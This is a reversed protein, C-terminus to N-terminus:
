IWHALTTMVKAHLTMLTKILAPLEQAGQQKAKEAHKAEDQQMQQVVIASNPDHPSLKHLHKQLHQGVQIETEEVFGLSWRDGAIGAVLGIIFSNWYWIINLYSRHSHLEQLRLYCWALHDTEEKGCDQLSKQIIPNSAVLAQAHYLAQACVEGSHNVRMLGASQKRQQESLGPDLMDKAPYPRECHGGGNVAQLCHDIQVIIRDFISYHRHNTLM